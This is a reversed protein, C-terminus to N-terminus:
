WSSSLDRVSKNSGYAFEKYDSILNEAKEIAEHLYELNNTDHLDLEDITLNYRKIEAEIDYQKFILTQNTIEGGETM